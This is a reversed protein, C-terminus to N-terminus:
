LARWYPPVRFYAHFEDEIAPNSLDVEQGEGFFPARSMKEETIDTKYGGLTVDYKLARWPIVYSESKLSTFSSFAVVAYAVTGSVKEIMLRKIMGVDRGKADYVMTGEVRDSEILLRKSSPDAPKM